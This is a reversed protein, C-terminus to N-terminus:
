TRTKEEEFFELIPSSSPSTKRTTATCMTTSRKSKQPDKFFFFQLHHSVHHFPAPPSAQPAAPRRMPKNLLVPNRRGFKKELLRSNYTGTKNKRNHTRKLNQAPSFASFEKTLCITHISSPVSSILLSTLPPLVKFSAALLKPLPWLKHMRVKEHPLFFIHYIRTRNIHSDVSSSFDFSTPLLFLSSSLPIPVICISSSVGHFPLFWSLNLMLSTDRVRYCIRRSSPYSFNWLDKSFQSTKKKVKLLRKLAQQLFWPRSDPAKLTFLIAALPLLFSHSCAPLTLLIDVRINAHIVGLFRSSAVSDPSVVVVVVLQSELGSKRLSFAKVQWTRHRLKKSKHNQFRTEKCLRTEKFFKVSTIQEPIQPEPKAASPTLKSPWQLHMCASTCVKCQM